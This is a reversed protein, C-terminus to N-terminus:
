GGKKRRETPSSVNSEPTLHSSFRRTKEKKQEGDSPPDDSILLGFHAHSRGEEERRKGEMIARLHSTHITLGRTLFILHRVDM